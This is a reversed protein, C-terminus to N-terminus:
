LVATNCTPLVLRLMTNGCLSRLKATLAAQQISCRIQISTNSSRVQVRMQAPPHLFHYPSPLGPFRRGQHCGHPLQSGAIDDKINACVAADERGEQGLSYPGHPLDNGKLGLAEQVLHSYTLGPRRTQSAVLQRRLRRGHSTAHCAFRTPRVLLAGSFPMAQWCREQQHVVGATHKTCAALTVSASFPMPLTLSTRAAAACWFLVVCSLAFTIVGENGLKRALLLVEDAEHACLNCM